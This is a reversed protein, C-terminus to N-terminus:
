EKGIIAFNRGEGEWGGKKLKRTSALFIIGRCSIGWFMGIYSQYLRELAITVFKDYNCRFVVDRAKYKLIRRGIPNTAKLCTCGM